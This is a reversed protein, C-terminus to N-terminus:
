STQDADGRRVHLRPAARLASAIDPHGNLEAFDAATRGDPRRLGPDAGAELLQTVMDMRGRSAAFSLPTSGLDRNSAEPELMANVDAGDAVAERVKEIQRGEQAAMFLRTTAESYPSADEADWARRMEVAVRARERRDPSTVPELLEVLDRHGKYLACFLACRGSAEPDGYSGDEEIAADPDAGAALLMRAVELHGKSAASILPTGGLEDAYDAPAGAALLVAVCRTQGLEAAEMLLQSGHYSAGLDPREALVISLADADGARIAELARVLISEPLLSPM